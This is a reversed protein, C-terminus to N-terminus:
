LLFQEVDETNFPWRLESGSDDRRLVPILVAYRHYLEHDDRINKSQIILERRELSNIVQMADDCLHCGPGTFLTLQM